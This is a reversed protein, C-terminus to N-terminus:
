TMLGQIRIRIRYGSESDPDAILFFAPDPDTDRDANGCGQSLCVKLIFPIVTDREQETMKSSVSLKMLMNDIETVGVAYM